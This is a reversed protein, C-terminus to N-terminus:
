NKVQEDNKIEPPKKRRRLLKLTAFVAATLFCLASLCSIITWGLSKIEFPASFTKGDITLFLSGNFSEFWSKKEFSLNLKETEGPALALNFNENKVVGSPDSDITVPKDYIATSGSNKIQAFGKLNFGTIGWKPLNWVVEYQSSQEVWDGLAFEVDVDKGEEGDLKYAGAPLPLESSIGRIALAFHNFDLKQFYDIGGTTAGWTPDVMVWVKQKEDWFEVWSHLIDKELSLPRLKSNTTHAFGDVERAPIGASRSLTVFLDTFEMCIAKEPNKLVDKAGIRQGGEKARQYDYKLTSVVYDYIEEPTKLQQALKKIDGDAVEWFKQGMLYKNLNEDKRRYSLDPFPSIKVVGSVLVDVKQGPSLDYRALWNGDEDERVSVPTPEIKEFQVRQYTNDSPLTIETYIPFIKPNALHYSLKFNFLQYDGFAVVVGSKLKEMTWTLGSNPEPSLYVPKGFSPPVELHINYEAIEPNNSKPPLIVEWIRGNKKAIESSKYSLAFSLVNGKGVAKDNFVLHIKTEDESSGVQPLIKGKRDAAIIEQIKPSPITLDYESVYYETTLNTINVQYTVSTVGNQEVEYNINYRSSFQAAALAKPALLHWFFLWFVIVPLLFIKKM